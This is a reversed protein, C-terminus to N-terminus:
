EHKEVYHLTPRLTRDTIRVMRRSINLNYIGMSKPNMKGEAAEM